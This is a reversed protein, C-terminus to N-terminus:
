WRKIINEAEEQSSSHESFLVITRNRVRGYTVYGPPTVLVQGKTVIGKYLMGKPLAQMKPENLESMMEIHSDISPDKLHATVAEISALMVHLSGHVVLRLSSLFCPEYSTGVATGLYRNVTMTSCVNWLSPILGDTNTIVAGELLQATVLTKMEGDM